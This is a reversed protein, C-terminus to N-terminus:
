LIRESNTEETPIENKMLREKLKELIIKIEDGVVIQPLSPLHQEEQERKEIEVSAKNFATIFSYEHVLQEGFYANGFYTFNGDHGCGFSSRDKSAATIILTHADKLDKIFAGSFCASVVIVRWKIGSMDLAQKLLGPTLTSLEIQGINVSLGDDEEGHSSLFLFLVDEARDMQQGIKALVATLNHSNALPLNNYTELNNILLMSRGKTDFREDFLKRALRAENMFVDEGAYAAFALFYLDIVGPRQTLLGSSISEILKDQSYFLKELNLKPHEAHKLKKSYQVHWMPQHVLYHYPLVNFLFYIALLGLRYQFPIKYTKSIARFVISLVWVMNAYFLISGPQWHDFLNQKRLLEILTVFVIFTIPNISLIMIGLKLISSNARNLGAILVLSFFFLIYLTAQYNLGNISFQNNPRSYIFDYGCIFSLSLVLLLFAQPVTFRYHWARVPAFVSLRCGAWVNRGLDAIL